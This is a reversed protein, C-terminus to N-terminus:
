RDLPPLPLSCMPSWWGWGKWRLCGQLVYCLPQGCCPLLLYKHFAHIFWSVLQDTNLFYRNHVLSQASSQLCPPIFDGLFSGQLRTPSNPHQMWWYCSLDRPGPIIESTESWLSTARSHLKLFPLIWYFSYPMPCLSSLHSSHWPLLCTSFSPM